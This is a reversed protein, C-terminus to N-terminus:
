VNVVVGNHSCRVIHVHGAVARLSDGYEAQPSCFSRVEVHLHEILAVICASESLVGDGVGYGLYEIRVVVVNLALVEAQALLVEEACSGDTVDYVIVHSDVAGELVKGVLHSDVYIVGVWCESDRLKHTDKQVVAAVAPILRPVDNCMGESVSVM